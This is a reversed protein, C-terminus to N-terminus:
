FTSILYSVAIREIIQKNRVNRLIVLYKERFTKKNQTKNMSM